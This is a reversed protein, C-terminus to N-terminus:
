VSKRGKKLMSPINHMKNTFLYRCYTINKTVVDGDKSRVNAYFECLLEGLEEENMSEIQGGLKEGLQM